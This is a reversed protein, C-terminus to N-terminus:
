SLSYFVIYKARVCRIVYNCSKFQVKNRSRPTNLYQHGEDLTSGDNGGIESRVRSFNEFNWVLHDHSVDVGGGDDVGVYGSNDM